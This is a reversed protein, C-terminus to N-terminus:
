RDTSLFFLMGFLPKIEFIKKLSLLGTAKLLHYLRM